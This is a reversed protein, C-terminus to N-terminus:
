TKDVLYGHSTLSHTKHQYLYISKSNDVFSFEFISSCLKFYM